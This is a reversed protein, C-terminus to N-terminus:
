PLLSPLLPSPHSCRAAYVYWALFGAERTLEGAVSAGKTASGIDHLQDNQLTWGRGYTALGMVIKNVPAGRSEWAKLAYAGTLQDAPNANYLATHAGTATEWSGHLDYTMVGLWDAAAALVPVDFGADIKDIGAPVALSLMLPPKGTAAAETQIATRLETILRGYNEKDQAAPYEWDMDIGDFTHGRAFAIASTVFTARHQESRVMPSFITSGFNWGGLSISTTIRPNQERLHAHFRKYMGQDPNWQDVDNWEFPEVEYDLTVRAFAYNM